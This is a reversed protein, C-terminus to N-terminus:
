WWSKQKAALKQAMSHFDEADSQMQATKDQLSSLKEGREALKNRTEELNGKLESPSAASDKAKAKGYKARIEDASSMRPAGSGGGSGGSATRFLEARGAEPDTRPASAAAATKSTLMSFGRRASASATKAPPGASEGTAVTAAPPRAVSVDVDAFLMALDAATARPPDEEEVLHEKVADVATKAKDKLSTAAERAKEKAGRMVSGFTAMASRADGKLMSRGASALDKSPTSTQTSTEVAPEVVASADRARFSADEGGSVPVADGADRRRSPSFTGRPDRSASTESAAMEAAEDAADAATALDEDWFMLGSEPRAKPGRAPAALALRAVARGGAAFAFLSGGGDGGFCMADASSVPPTPGVSALLNLGPLAWVLVRGHASVAAFASMRPSEENARAPEEEDEDGGRPTVLAAAVLREDASAKKLTHREGRIAGNAPYVRLAETSAVAVLAVLADRADDPDSSGESTSAAAESAESAESADAARKTSEGKEGENTFWFWSSGAKAGEDARRLAARPADRRRAAGRADLPAVALAPSATKPRCPKGLVEGSAVGVFAVASGTSTVAVMEAGSFATRLPNLTSGGGPADSNVDLDSDREAETEDRDERSERSGLGTTGVVPACFAAAAVGEPVGGEGKADRFPACTFRLLGERLDTVSCVGAADGVFLLSRGSDVRTEVCTVAAAHAGLEGALVYGSVKEQERPADAAASAKKATTPPDARRLDMGADLVRVASTAAAADELAVHVEVAGCRRGVVLMAGGCALHCATVARDKASVGANPGPSALAVPVFRGVGEMCVRVAAGEAAAAAVVNRQVAVNGKFWRGADDVAGGTLPWADGWSDRRSQFSAAGAADLAKAFRRAVGPSAATAAPACRAALRPMPEVIEEAPLPAREARENTRAREASARPEDGGDVDSAPAPSVPLPDRRGAGDALSFVRADHVHIQGGESLTAAAAAEEPRFPPPALAVATVPGFYPLAVAGAKRAEAPRPPGSDSDLELPVLVAPDPAGAAEGGVCALVGGAAAQSDRDDGGPVSSGSRRHGSAQGAMASGAAGAARAVLARVPMREDANAGPRPHFARACAIVVANRRASGPKGLAPVIWLRVAGDDHGTAIVGGGNGVWTACRLAAAGASPSAVAAPKKAHLDWVSLRGDAYAFLARATEFGPQPEVAVCAARSTSGAEKVRAGAEELAEVSQLEWPVAGMAQEPTVAYARPALVGGGAGPRAAAVRVAGSAEGLLIFPSRRLAAAATVRNPWRTSALLTQSRLDWVDVGSEVSVRIVRGVSGVFRVRLAPELHRPTALLVSLGDAGLVKVGTDVGVALLRQVPDYDVCTASHLSGYEAVIRPALPPAGLSKSLADVDPAANIAETVAKTISSLKFRSM